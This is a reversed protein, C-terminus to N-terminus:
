REENQVEDSKGKKDKARKKIKLIIHALEYGIDIVQDQSLEHIDCPFFRKRINNQEHIIIYVGQKPYSDSNEAIKKAGEFLNNLDPTEPLLINM